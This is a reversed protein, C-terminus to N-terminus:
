EAHFKVAVTMSMRVEQPQFELTAEIRDTLGQPGYGPATQVALGPQCQMQQYAVNMNGNNLASVRHAGSTESLKVPRVNACGLVECYDKAKQLADGAASKRLQSRYSKETAATLIWDIDTVETYELASLRSSFEGLERFKKFRIDFTIKANYQRPKHQEGRYDYPVWSTSSLSTKSWHALPAAEKAEPTNDVPSLDKLLNELHKSTTLVEDSVAAKNLGTSAVAVHILAREAHHPIEAHGEVDIIFPAMDHKFEFSKLPSTFSKFNLFRYIKIIPLIHNLLGLNSPLSVVYLYLRDDPLM